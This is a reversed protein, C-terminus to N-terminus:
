AGRNDGPGFQDEFRTLATEARRTRNPATNRLVSQCPTIRYSPRRGRLYSTAHFFAATSAAASAKASAAIASLEDFEFGGTVLGFGLALRTRSRFLTENPSGLETVTGFPLPLAAPFSGIPLM